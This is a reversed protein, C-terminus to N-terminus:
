RRGPGRPAIALACALGGLGVAALRAPTPEAGLAACAAAVLVLCAGAGVSGTAVGTALWAVGGYLVAAAGAALLCAV